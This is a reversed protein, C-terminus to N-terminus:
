ASKAKSSMVAGDLWPPPAAFERTTCFLPSVTIMQPEQSETLSDLGQM